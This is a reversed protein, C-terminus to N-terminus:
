RTLGRLQAAQERAIRGQEIQEETPRKVEPTRDSGKFPVDTGLLREVERHFARPGTFATMNRTKMYAVRSAAEFDADSVNDPKTMGLRELQRPVRVELAYQMDATVPVEPIPSPPTVMAEEFSQPEAVRDSERLSEGLKEGYEKKLRLPEQGESEVELNTPEEAVVPSTLAADTDTVEGTDADVELGTTGGPTLEIGSGGAPAKGESEALIAGYMDDDKGVLKPAMNNPGGSVMVGDETFEYNYGGGGSFKSGVAPGTAEAEAEAEADKGLAKAAAGETLDRFVNPRRGRAGRRLARKSKRLDKRAKIADSHQKRLENLEAMEENIAEVEEPTDAQAIMDNVIRRQERIRRIMNGAFLGEPEAEPTAEPEPAPAPAPAPAEPTAEGVRIDEEEDTLSPAIAAAAAPDDKSLPGAGMGDMRMKRRAQRLAKGELPELDEVEETSAKEEFVSPAGRGEAMQALREDSVRDPGSILKAMRIADDPGIKGRGSRLAREEYDKNIIAASRERPAALTEDEPMFSDPDLGEAGIVKDVDLIDGMKDQAKKQEYRDIAQAGQRPDAGFDKAGEKPALAESALERDRRLRELAALEKPGVIVGEQKEGLSGAARDALFRGPKDDRRKLTPSSEDVTGGVSGASSSTAM